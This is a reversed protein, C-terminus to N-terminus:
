GLAVGQQQTTASPTSFGSKSTNVSSGKLQDQEQQLQIAREQQQQIVQIASDVIQEADQIDLGDRFYRIVVDRLIPIVTPNTGLVNLAEKLSAAKQFKSQAQRAGVFRIDADFDVDDLTVPFREGALIEEREESLFQRIRSHITKGVWPYTDKEVLQVMLEVKQSALRVLENIETATQRDSGSPIAQMPNTAGSAERMNQKRRQLEAASFSLANLNIELPKVADPNGVPIVDNPVRRALRRIDGNFGQGVMLVNRVALDAADTYLMLLHDTSDQLFRIVEGVGLGYFRGAIPNLIVEKFPINGDLYPNIHSRVHVGNLITIVRNRAGDPPLFPTQGWFEFGTLMGYDEHTERDIDEFRKEENTKQLNNSGRRVADRVQNLNYVGARGLRLAEQSSVRFKHAIGVMDEQIRTGSPDPYFDFIDKQRILPADRYVVEGVGPKQGVLFGTEEDFVPENVVQIRSRTEWGIELIATGFIFGDKFTTFNTRYTGPAQLIGQLLRGLFRAKQTDDFGIPMAQIYDMSPMLLGIGQAALTDIIQNTEPDKLVSHGKNDNRLAPSTVFQRSGIRPQAQRGGTPTVLYNDLVENWVELFPERHQRSKEVFQLVFDAEKLRQRDRIFAARSEDPASATSIVDPM